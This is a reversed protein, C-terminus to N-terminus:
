VQKVRYSWSLIETREFQVDKYVFEKKEGAKLYQTVAESYEFGRQNKFNFTVTFYDGVNEKNQVSVVYKTIYSGFIDKQQEKRGYYSFDTRKETKQQDLNYYNIEHRHNYDYYYYNKGQIHSSYDQNESVAFSTPVGVREEKEKQKVLSSILLILVIAIFLLALAIVLIKKNSDRM